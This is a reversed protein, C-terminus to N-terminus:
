LALEPFGKYFLVGEWKFRPVSSANRCFVLYAVQKEGRPTLTRKIKNIQMMYEQIKKHKVENGMGIHGPRGGTVRNNEKMGHIGDM